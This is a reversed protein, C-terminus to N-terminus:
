RSKLLPPLEALSRIQADPAEPIREPPQGYRNCWLVRFGFAKASYADWGNSSLFCIESGHVGLRDVALQYVSPHPKYVGVEEVSLIADMVEAIAANEVAAQLMAPTGNSLIALKFGSAKLARLTDAVEPFANLRLYLQMLDHRLGADDFGHTQLAFDLADGTVQWFDAHRGALGRLWTYQLQKTRWTDALAPWTEGLRDQMARAASNVDFLTGYADFVCARIGTLQTM